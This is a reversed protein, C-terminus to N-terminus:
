QLLQQHYLSLQIYLVGATQENDNIKGTGLHGICITIWNYSRNRNKSQIELPFIQDKGLIEKVATKLDEYFNGM